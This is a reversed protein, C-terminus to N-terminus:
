STRLRRCCCCWCCSRNWDGSELEPEDEQMNGALWNKLYFENTLLKMENQFEYPKWGTPSRSSGRRRIVPHRVSHGHTHAHGAAHLVGWILVDIKILLVSCSVCYNREVKTTPTDGSTSPWNTSNAAAAKTKREALIKNSCKQALLEPLHLANSSYRWKQAAVRIKTGLLQKVLKVEFLLLFLLAGVGKAHAAM